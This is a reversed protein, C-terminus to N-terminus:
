RAGRYVLNQAVPFPRFVAGAFQSRVITLFFLVFVSFVRFSLLYFEASISLIFEDGKSCPDGMEPVWRHGTLFQAECCSTLPPGSLSSEDAVGWQECWWRFWGGREGRVTSFSVKM